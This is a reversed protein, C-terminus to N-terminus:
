WGKRNIEGGRGDGGRPPSARPRRGGSRRPRPSGVAAADSPRLRERRQQTRQAALEAPM